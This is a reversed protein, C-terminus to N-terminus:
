PQPTADHLRHDVYSAAGDFVSLDALNLSDSILLLSPYNSHITSTVNAWFGFPWNDVGSFFLVPKDNIETFAPNSSYTQMIYSVDEVIQASEQVYTANMNQIITTEFYLTVSFDNFKAAAENLLIQDTNDTYSGPGWWSAIFGDIGASVAESIQTDIMTINQSDYLGALPTDAVALSNPGDIGGYWADKTYWGYYYAFVPKSSPFRNSITNISDGYSVIILAVSSVTLIAM